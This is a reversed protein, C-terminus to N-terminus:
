PSRFEARQAGMFFTMLPMGNGASDDTIEASYDIYM